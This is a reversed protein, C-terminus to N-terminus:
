AGSSVLNVARERLRDFARKKSNEPFNVYRTLNELFFVEFGLKAADEATWFVCYDGALGCVAVSRVGIEKLFAALGTSRGDNEFFGSYSDCDPRQGKRLILRAKSTLLSSDIKWGETGVVCHDPWLVQAKGETNELYEVVETKSFINSSVKGSKVEELSLLEFDKKGSYSSAFSIHNRPHSDQTFVLNEFRDVAQNIGAVLEEGGQVPLAGDSYFDYQMDVVLLCSDSRSAIKQDFVPLCESMVRLQNYSSM